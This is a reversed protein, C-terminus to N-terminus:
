KAEKRTIWNYAMGAIEIKNHLEFESCMTLAAEPDERTMMWDFFSLSSIVRGEHERLCRFGVHELFHLAPLNTNPTSGLLLTFPTRTFVMHLATDTALLATKGRFEPLVAVHVEAIAANVPVVVFVGGEWLLWTVRKMSAVIDKTQKLKEAIGDLLFTPAVESHMIIQRIRLADKPLGVRIFSHTAQM